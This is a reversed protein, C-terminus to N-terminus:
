LWKYFKYFILKIRKQESWRTVNSVNQQLSTRMAAPATSITSRLLSATLSLSNLLVVKKTLKMLVTSSCRAGKSHLEQHRHTEQLYLLRFMERAVAQEQVGDEEDRGPCITTVMVTMMMMVMM